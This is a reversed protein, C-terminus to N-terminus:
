MRNIIANLTASPRMAVDCKADDPLYYGGIDVPKGQAALLEQTITGENAALAAAVPAFRQKLEGDEDQAALAKAWAWQLYFTSGLNDIENVKRSPERADELYRGIAEDLTKLLLTARRSSTKAAIFELSPILACYEGLSNWRLYREKVFQQM